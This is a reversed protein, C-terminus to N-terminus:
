LRVRKKNHRMADRGAATRVADDTRFAALAAALHDVGARDLDAATAKELATAVLRLIGAGERRFAM